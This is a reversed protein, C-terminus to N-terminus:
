ILKEGFIKHIIKEYEEYLEISYSWKLGWEKSKQKLEKVADRVDDFEFYEFELNGYAEKPMYQKKDSLSIM